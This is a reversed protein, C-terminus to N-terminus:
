AEDLRVSIRATELDPSAFKKLADLDITFIQYDQYDDGRDYPDCVNPTLTLLLYRFDLIVSEAQNPFKKLNRHSDELRLHIFTWRPEYLVGLVHKHSPEHQYDTTLPVTSAM